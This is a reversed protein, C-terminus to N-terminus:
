APTRRRLAVPTPWSVLLSAVRYRRSAWALFYGGGLAAAVIAPYMLWPDSLGARQLLRAGAVIIPLHAVYFILSNRGVYELASRGAGPRVKPVIWSALVIFGLVAPTSLPEYLVKWGAVNAAAGAIAAVGATILIPPTTLLHDFARRYQQFTIGLMFFGFLFFAKELRYDAPVFQSIVLAIAAPAWPPVRRLVWAAGYFFILFWLYWLHTERPNYVARSLYEVTLDGAGVLTILTWVAYPWAVNRLKGAFYTPTGKALSRSVFIGSLFMLTPMRFPEFISNFTEIPSPYYDAYLKLALGGHLFVVLVIAVGRLTDIWILRAM